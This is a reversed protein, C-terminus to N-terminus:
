IAVTETKYSGLTRPIDAYICPVDNFQVNLIALFYCHIKHQTKVM